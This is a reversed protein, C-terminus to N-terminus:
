FTEGEPLTKTICPQSFVGPGTPYVARIKFVYETDPKLENFIRHSTAYPDSVSVKTRFLNIVNISFFIKYVEFGYWKPLSLLEDEEIPKDAPVYFIEFGTPHEEIIDAPKWRVEVSTQNIPEM